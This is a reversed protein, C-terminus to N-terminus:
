NQLSDLYEQLQARTQQGSITPAENCGEGPSEDRAEDDDEVGGYDICINHLMCCVFIVKPLTHIDPHCVVGYLYRWVSKLREFAREVVIRTSSLKFNFRRQEITVPGEFPIMLWPLLLFGGDGVIYERIAFAGDRFHEGNLIQGREALQYFSSNRLVRIESASGPFGVFVNLFRMSSDVIAQLIMSCNHYRDFWANSLEGSPLEMNIHTCDIAGCCNPLGQKVKFAGKVQSMKRADRPWYLYTNRRSVMADLFKQVVGIVISKGMGFIESVSNMSAGTALRFIAVAVQKHVPLVRGAIGQFSPPIPGQQLDDQLISCLHEFLLMSLRFVSRFCENDCRTFMVYHNWWHLSRPKIYWERIHMSTSHTVAQNAHSLFFYILISAYIDERDLAVSHLLNHSLSSSLVLERLNSMSEVFEDQGRRIHLVHQLISGLTM